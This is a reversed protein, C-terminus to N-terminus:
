YVARTDPKELFLSDVRIRVTYPTAQSRTRVPKNVYYYFVKNIDWSGFSLFRTEGPPIAVSVEVSRKHLSRNHMDLYEIELVAGRAICISDRNSVFITEKASKLPKEYGSVFLINEADADTLTDFRATKVLNNVRSRGGDPKLGKRTTRQACMMGAAMLMLLLLFSRM